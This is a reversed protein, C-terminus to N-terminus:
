KNGFKTFPILSPVRKSYETYVDGYYDRLDKEEFVLTGIFIYGTTMGAFLLHGYTMVPTAWFSIIFGLMIPHRVFKYYGKDTFPPPTFEKKQLFRTIQALGFLEFHNILFTSTFVIAWGIWFLVTVIMGGTTGELNWVLETMPQWKWFMLLLILSTVLVFTSREAAEPIIKTWAKKFNPRAMITHQIAFLSLLGLNILLATALPVEVGMNISKPVLLNGVFGIAYLFAILFAVYSILGYVFVIIRKM